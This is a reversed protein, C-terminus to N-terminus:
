VSTIVAVFAAPCRELGCRSLKVITFYAELREVRRARERSQEFTTTQTQSSAVSADSARAVVRDRLELLVAQLM